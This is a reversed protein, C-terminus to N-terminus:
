GKKFENYEDESIVCYDDWGMTADIIDTPSHQDDFKVVDYTDTGGYQLLGKVGGQEYANVAETGFVVYTPNQAKRVLTRDENKIITRM